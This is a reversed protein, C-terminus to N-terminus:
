MEKRHKIWSFYQNRWLNVPMSQPEIGHAELIVPLSLQDMMGFKLNQDWWDDWARRLLESNEIMWLTGCWLAADLNWGRARFDEMQETMKEGAYRETLYANGAEIERQIFRYEESITSRDPHPVLLIRKNEPLRSLALARERRSM